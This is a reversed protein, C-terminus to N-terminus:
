RGDETEAARAAHRCGDAAARGMVVDEAFTGCTPAGCAGCDRGPLARALSDIRSLKAIAEAMDPDLRVGPRQAHPQARRVAAAISRAETSVPLSAQRWRHLSLLPDACLLPSGSCGSECLTLDLLSIGACAGSEAASLARLVHRIGSAALEDRGTGTTGGNGIRHLGDLTARSSLRPLVAEALRAPTVVTLRGTLSAGSCASYQGPCAAVLFVPRLPFEEGAAQLPSIWPGLHPILTPFRSEVLAVVAPCIPAILPLPHAGSAARARAEARLAEEWEEAHRIEGFGIERLAACVRAPSNDVPFGSLFGRPVVLVADEPVPPFAPRAHDSERIGYVAGSCEAICASCGICLDHLLAPGGDRVRLAETPCAFICRLCERCRSRDISLASPRVEESVRPAAGDAAGLLITSRIRTGRGVRTEIEFLDSNRRINPLGLGAGFGMERAEESATSWGERLALEVNPIGPGEDAIELDLKEDDLRIWLTGTRAHIVVNMEAEYSAIMARRMAPVAVGIRALQEKLKRTALGASDFDGGDIRCSMTIM